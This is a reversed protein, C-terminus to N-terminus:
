LMNATSMSCAEDIFMEGSAGRSPMNVFLLFFFRTSYGPHKATM